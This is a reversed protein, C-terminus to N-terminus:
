QKKLLLLNETKSVEKYHHKIFNDKEGNKNIDMVIYEAKLSKIFEDFEKKSKPNHNCLWDQLFFYRNCPKINTHLYFSALMNYTIVKNKYRQEIQKEIVKAEKEFAETRKYQFYGYDAKVLTGFICAMVALTGIISVRRIWTFIKNEEATPKSFLFPIIVPVYILYYHAYVYQTLQFAIGIVITLLYPLNVALRKKDSICNVIGIAFAALMPIILLITHVIDRITTPELSSTAYSFNYEYVAFILDSLAHNALFYILFPTLVLVLGLAMLLIKKLVNKIGEEKITVVCLVIIFVCLPLANTVRTLACIGFSIGYFLLHGWDIKDQKKCLYSTIWYISWVLFPLCYEETFNGGQYCVNVLFVTVLCVLVKNANKNFLTTLKYAGAVIFSFNIVQLVFIGFSSKFAALGIAQILILYPGKTDFCEKYPILGNIFFKGMATFVDTDGGYTYSELLPSTNYAGILLFVVIILFLIINDRKIINKLM